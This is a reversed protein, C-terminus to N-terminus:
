RFRMSRPAQGYDNSTVGNRSTGVYLDRGDAQEVTIKGGTPGIAGSHVAARCLYSQDLYGDTGWVTGSRTATGDCTCELRALDPNVSFREPCPEPGVPLNRSGVFRISHPADGYDASTVGNRTTGPYLERGKVREVTIPGGATTIVGAHVAARCLYSQDLYIDSGWVTGSRTAAGDCVCAFPSPLDPSVSYREPCPGATAVSATEAPRLDAPNATAHVPTAPAPAAPVRAAPGSAATAPVDDAAWDRGRDGDFSFVWAAVAAVLALGALAGAVAVAGGLRPKRPARAHGPVASPRVATEAARTRGDGIAGALREWAGTRPPNWADIWQESSVFFELGRGPQIQEIRVPFIRKGKSAARELERRVFGSRNAAASLILVFVPCAEIGDVIESAYDTGPTVDRPAIWCGIGQRELFDCVEDAIALDEAAHSIFAIRAM